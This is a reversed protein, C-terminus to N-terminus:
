TGMRVLIAKAVSTYLANAQAASRTSDVFSLQLRLVQNGKLVYLEFYPTGASLIHARAQDGLGTVQPEPDYLHWYAATSSADRGRFVSYQVYIDGSTTTAAANSVDIGPAFEVKGGNAEPAPIPEGLAATLEDATVLGAAYAGSRFDSQAGAQTPSPVAPRQSGKAFSVAGRETLGSRHRITYASSATTPTDASANIQISDIDPHGSINTAQLTVKGFGQVMITVDGLQPTKASANESSADYQDVSVVYTTTPPPPGGLLPGSFAVTCTAVRGSVDLVVSVDATGERGGEEAWSGAWSGAYRDRFRTLQDATFQKAVPQAPGSLSVM